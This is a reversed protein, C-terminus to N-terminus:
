GTLELPTATTRTRGVYDILPAFERSGTWVDFVSAEFMERVPKGALILDGARECAFLGSEMALV